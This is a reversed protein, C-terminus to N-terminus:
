PCNSKRFLNDPAKKIKNYSIRYDIVGAYQILFALLCSKELNEEQGDKIEYRTIYLKM